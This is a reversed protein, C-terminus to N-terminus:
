FGNEVSRRYDIFDHVTDLDHGPAGALASSRTDVILSKNPGQQLSSSSLNTPHPTCKSPTGGHSAYGAQIKRPELLRGNLRRSGNSHFTM